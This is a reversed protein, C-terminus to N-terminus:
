GRFPEGLITIKGMARKHAPRLTHMCRKMEWDNGFAFKNLSYPLLAVEGYIQRCSRLLGLRLSRSGEKLFDRSACRNYLGGGYHMPYRQKKITKYYHEHPIYRVVIRHPGLALSYIRNRIEPPLRLLPSTAFNRKM